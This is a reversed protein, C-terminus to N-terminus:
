AELATQKVFASDDFKIRVSLTAVGSALINGDTEIWLVRNAATDSDPDFILAKYTTDPTGDLIVGVATNGTPVTATNVCYAATSPDGRGVKLTGTAILETDCALRVSHVNGVCPVPIYRIDGAAAIETIFTITKM